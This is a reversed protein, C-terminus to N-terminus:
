SCFFSAGLRGTAAIRQAFTQAITSKGCGTFGKLWYVSENTERDVEWAEIEKLVGERTGQLCTKHNESSYGAAM